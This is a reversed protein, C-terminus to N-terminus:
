IQLLEPCREIRSTVGEICPVEQSFDYGIRKRSSWEVVKYCFFDSSNLYGVRGLSSNRIQM